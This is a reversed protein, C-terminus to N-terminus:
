DLVLDRLYIRLSLVSSRYNSNPSDVAPSLNTIGYYSEDERLAIAKSREAQKIITNEHMGKRVYYGVPM